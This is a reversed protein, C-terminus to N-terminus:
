PLGGEGSQRKAEKMSIFRGPHRPDEIAAGGHKWYDWLIILLAMVSLAAIALLIIMLM